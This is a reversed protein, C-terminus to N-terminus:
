VVLVGEPAQLMHCGVSPKVGAGGEGKDKARFVVHNDAQMKFSHRVHVAVLEIRTANPSTAIALGLELRLGAPSKGSEGVRKVAPDLLAM